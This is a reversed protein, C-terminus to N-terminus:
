AKEQDDNCWEIVEKGIEAGPSVERYRNEPTIQAVMQALTPAAGEDEKGTNAGSSAVEQGIRELEAHAEQQLSARVEPSAKHKLDNWKTTAMAHPGPPPAIRGRKGQSFDYRPKM